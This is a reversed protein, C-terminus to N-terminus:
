YSLLTIRSPEDSAASNANRAAVAPRSSVSQQSGLQSDAPPAKGPQRVIPSYWKGKQALWDGNTHGPM